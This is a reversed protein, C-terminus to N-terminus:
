ITEQPDLCRDRVVTIAAHGMLLGCLHGFMPLLQENHFVVKIKLLL